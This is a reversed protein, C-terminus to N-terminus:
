EVFDGDIPIGSDVPENGDSFVEEGNQSPLESSPSEDKPNEPEVEEVSPPTSTPAKPSPETDHLKM